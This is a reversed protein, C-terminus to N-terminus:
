PAMPLQYDFKYIHKGNEIIIEINGTIGTLEGTGSDPVITLIMKSTGGQMTGTHQVIFSGRRGDLTGTVQEMAVYGGSGEVPTRVGLMQGKGIADLAGHYKKDLLLRGIIEGAADPDAPQPIIKVDFPGTAQLTMAKGKSLTFSVNALTPAAAMAAGATAAFALVIAASLTRSTQSFSLQQFFQNM